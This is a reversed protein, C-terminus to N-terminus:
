RFPLTAILNPCVLCLNAIGLHPTSACPVETTMYLGLHTSLGFPFAGMVEKIPRLETLM